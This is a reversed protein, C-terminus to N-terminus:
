EQPNFSIRDPCIQQKQNGPDAGDDEPDPDSGTMELSGILLMGLLTTMWFMDAIKGKCQSYFRQGKLANIPM